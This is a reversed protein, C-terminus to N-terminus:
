QRGLHQCDRQVRQRLPAARAVPARRRQPWAMAARPIGAPRRLRGACHFQRRRQGALLDASQRARPAFPAFGASRPYPHPRSGLRRAPRQAAAQHRCDLSPPRSSPDPGFVHTGACRCLGGARPLLARGRAHRGELAPPAM